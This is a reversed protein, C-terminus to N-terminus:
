FEIIEAVDFSYDFCNYLLVRNMLQRHAIHAHARIIFFTTFIDHCQCKLKM